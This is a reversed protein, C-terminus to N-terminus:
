GRQEITGHRLTFTDLRDNFVYYFGENVPIEYRQVDQYENFGPNFIRVSKLTPNVKTIDFVLVHRYDELFNIYLAKYGQQSLSYLNEYKGPEIFITEYKGISHNRSKLEVKCDRKMVDTCDFDHKTFRPTPTMNTFWKMKQNFFTFKKADVEEMQDFYNSDDAM